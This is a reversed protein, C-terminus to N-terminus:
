NKLNQEVISIFDTVAPLLKQIEELDEKNIMHYEHAIINRYQSLKQLDDNLKKNILKYDYLINFTEAYTSPYGLKRKTIIYDAIDIAYNVIQFLQMPIAYKQDDTTQDKKANLRNFNNYHEQLKTVKSEFEIDM